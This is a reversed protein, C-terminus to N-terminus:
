RGVLLTARPCRPWITATGRASLPHKGANTKLLASDKTCKRKLLAATEHPVPVSANEVGQTNHAEDSDQCRAARAAGAATTAAATVQLRARDTNARFKGGGARIAALALWGLVPHIQRDHLIRAQRITEFQLHTVKVIDGWLRAQVTPRGARLVDLLHHRRVADQGKDAGEVAANSAGLDRDRRLSAQRHNARGVGVRAQRKGLIGRLIAEVVRAQM